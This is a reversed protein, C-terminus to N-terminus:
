ETEGSVFSAPMVDGNNPLVLVRIQGGTGILVTGTTGAGTSTALVLNVAPRFGVPLTGMLDYLVTTGGGFPTLFHVVGECDRYFDGGTWSNRDGTYKAESQSVGATGIGLDSVNAKFTTRTRPNSGQSVVSNDRKVVSYSAQATFALENGAFGPALGCAVLQNSGIVTKYMNAVYILYDCGTGGGLNNNVILNNGGQRTAGELFIMASPTSANVGSSIEIQNNEIRIADGDIVHIAGDRNTITNGRVMTNYSGIAVDLTIACRTGFFLNKQIANADGFAAYIGSGVTNLEIANHAFGDHDVYISYGDNVEYATLNCNRIVSSYIPYGDEIWLAHKGSANCYLGLNEVRWNRVDTLGGNAAFEVKLLSESTGLSDGRIYTRDADETVLNLKRALKLAETAAGGIGIVRYIGRPFYLTGWANDMASQIATRDDTTGDGKAGWQKVNNLSTTSIGGNDGGGVFRAVETGGVIASLYSSAPTANGVGGFGSTVDTEHPILTPNTASSAENQLAPSGATVGSFRNIAGELHFKYGPSFTSGAAGAPNTAFVIGEDGGVWVMATADNISRHWAADAGYYANNGAYLFGSVTEAAQSLLFGTGGLQVARYTALWGRDTSAGAASIITTGGITIKPILTDVVLVGADGATRIDLSDARNTKTKLASITFKDTVANYTMSKVDSYVEALTQEEAVAMTGALWAAAVVALGFVRGM